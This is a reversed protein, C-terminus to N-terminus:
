VSPPGATVLTRRQRYRRVMWVLLLVLVLAALPALIAAALLGFSTLDELVSLAPNAHGATMATSGLRAKAKAGHVALAGAGLVVAGIQAWPEGWGQLVAFGGVWAAAPRLFTGLADLAHDVVPIKDAAIELVTAIGLAWLANDGALWESGAHLPLFGSRAALGVVFLPLFARLGCAAAIGIGSLLALVLGFDL